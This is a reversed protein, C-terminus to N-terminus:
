QGGGLLSHLLGRSQTQRTANTAAAAAIAAAAADAARSASVAPGGGRSTEIILDATTAKQLAERSQQASLGALVQADHAKLQEAKTQRIYDLVCTKESESFKLSPQTCTIFIKGVMAITAALLLAILSLLVILSPHLDHGSYHCLLIISVFLGGMSFLGMIGWTLSPNSGSYTEGPHLDDWGAKRFKRILWAYLLIICISLSFYVILLICISQSHHPDDQILEPYERRIWWGALGWFSGTVFLWVLFSTLGPSMQKDLLGQQTLYTGIEQLRTTNMNPCVAQLTRSVYAM